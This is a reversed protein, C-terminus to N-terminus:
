IEKCSLMFEYAKEIMDPIGDVELPRVIFCLNLPCDKLFRNLGISECLVVIPLSGLNFFPEFGNKLVHSSGIMLLDQQRTNIIATAEEVSTVYQIHVPLTLHALSEKVLTIDAITDLLLLRDKM